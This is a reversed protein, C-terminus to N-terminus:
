KQNERILGAHEILGNKIRLDPQQNSIELIHASKAKIYAASAEEPTDYRGLYKPQGYLKIQAFFKDSAKDFHVGQPWKGRARAHDTLLSNVAHTVFCCTEPSYVKNGVVLIDKDLEKGEWDQEIMWSRFAMFSLWEDTVSCGIYTPYTKPNYCRELMRNWRGYYPCITKKGNVKPKVLYGADNLGVGYVPKRKAISRKNAPYEVFMFDEIFQM